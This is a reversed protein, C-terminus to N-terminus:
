DSIIDLKKLNLNLKCNNLIFVYFWSMRKKKIAPPESKSMSWYVFGTNPSIVEKYFTYKEEKPLWIVSEKWNTYIGQVDICFIM